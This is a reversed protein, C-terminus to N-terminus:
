SSLPQPNSDVQLWKISELLETKEEDKIEALKLWISSRKEKMSKGEFRCLDKLGIPEFKLFIKDLELQLKEVLDAM